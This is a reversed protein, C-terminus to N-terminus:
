GPQNTHRPIDLNATSCVKGEIDCGKRIPQYQRNFNIHLFECVPKIAIWYTGTVSQYVISKGKFELFSVIQKNM